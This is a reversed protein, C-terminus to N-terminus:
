FPVHVFRLRSRFMCISREVVVIRTRKAQAWSCTDFMGGVQDGKAATSADMM